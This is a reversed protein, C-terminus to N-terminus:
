GLKQTNKKTTTATATNENATPIEINNSIKEVLLEKISQPLAADDVDTVAATLTIADENSLTNGTDYYAEITTAGTMPIEQLADLMTQLDTAKEEATTAQEGNRLNAWIDKAKEYAEAADDVTEQGIEYAAQGAGKATDVLDKALAGVVSAGEEVSKDKIAKQIQQGREKATAAVKKGKEVIGEVGGAKEFAKEALISLGLKGFM